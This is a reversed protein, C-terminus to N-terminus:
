LHIFHSRLLLVVIRLVRVKLLTHLATSHAEIINLAPCVMRTIRGSSPDSILVMPELGPVAAVSNHISSPGSVNGTQTSMEIAAAKPSTIEASSQQCRLAHELFHQLLAMVSRFDAPDRVVMVLMEHLVTIRPTTVSLEEGTGSVSPQASASVSTTDRTSSTRSLAAIGKTSAGAAQVTSAAAINKESFSGMQSCLQRCYVYVNQLANTLVVIFTFLVM